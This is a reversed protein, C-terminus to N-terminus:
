DVVGLRSAYREAQSANEEAYGLLDAPGYHGPGSYGMTGGPGVLKAAWYVTFEACDTAMVDSSPLTM